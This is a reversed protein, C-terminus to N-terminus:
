WFGVFAVERLVPNSLIILFQLEAGLRIGLRVGLRIGLRVGLRIGLRIGFIQRVGLRIGLVLEGPVQVGQVLSRVLVSQVSVSQVLM